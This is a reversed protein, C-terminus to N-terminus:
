EQEGKECPEHQRQCQWQRHQQRGVSHHHSNSSGRRGGREILKLAFKEVAAPFTESFVLRQCTRPLHNKILLANARFRRSRQADVTDGGRDGGFVGDIGDAVFVKVTSTDIVRRKILDVIKGPTGVVIHADLPSPPPLAPIGGTDNNKSNYRLCNNSLASSRATRPKSALGFCSEGSVALRVRLGDGKQSSSGLRDSLPQVYMDYIEIALERTPAVILAQLTAAATGSSSSSVRRPHSSSAIRDDRSEEKSCSSRLDDGFSAAILATTTEISKLTTSTTSTTAGMMTIRAFVGIAYSAIKINDDFNAGGGSGSCCSSGSSSMAQAIVDRGNLIVPLLQQRKWAVPSFTASSLLTLQGYRDNPLVAMRLEDDGYLARLFRFPLNLEEREGQEVADEKQRQQIDRSVLRPAVVSKPSSNNRLTRAYYSAPPSVAKSNSGSVHSRSRRDGVYEEEEVKDNWLLSKTGSTGSTSYKELQREHADCRALLLMAHSRVGVPDIPPLLVDDEAEEHEDELEEEEELGVERIPQLITIQQQRRQHKKKKKLKGGQKTKRGPM